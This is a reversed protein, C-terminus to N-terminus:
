LYRLYRLDRTWEISHSGPCPKRDRHRLTRRGACSIGGGSRPTGRALEPQQGPRRWVPNRLGGSADNPTHLVAGGTAGSVSKHNLKSTAGIGCGAQCPWRRWDRRQSRPAARRPQPVPASRLGSIPEPKGAGAHFRPYLRSATPASCWRSSQRLPPRWTARRRSPPALSPPTPARPTRTRRTSSARWAIRRHGCGSRM